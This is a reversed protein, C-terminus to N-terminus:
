FPSGGQLLANINRDLTKTIINMETWHISRSLIVVGIDFINVGQELTTIRITFWLGTVHYRKKYRIPESDEGMDYLSFRANKWINDNFSTSEFYFWSQQIYWWKYHRMWNITCVQHLAAFLLIARQISLINWHLYINSKILLHQSLSDIHSEKTSVVVKHVM